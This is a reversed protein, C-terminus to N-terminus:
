RIAWSTQETGSCVVYRDALEIYYAKKYNKVILPIGPFCLLGLLLFTLMLCSEETNIVKIALGFMIIALLLWQYNLKYQFFTKDHNKDFFLYQKM